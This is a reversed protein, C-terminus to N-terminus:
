AEDEEEAVFLQAVRQEVTRLTIEVDSDVDLAHVIIRDGDFGSAVTGPLLSVVNIFLYRMPGEPLATAFRIFGPVVPLRPHFVRWAVDWGGRISERLFFATFSLFGRWRLRPKRDTSLVGGLLAAAVVVPAGIMWSALDDGNLGFWVLAAIAGPRIFRGFHPLVTDRLPEPHKPTLLDM